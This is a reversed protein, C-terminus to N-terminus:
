ETRVANAQDWAAREGLEESWRKEDAHLRAFAENAEELFLRRRYQEIAEDVIEQMRRNTRESLAKLTTKASSSIRVTTSSM